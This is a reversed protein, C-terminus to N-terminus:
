AISVFLHQQTSLRVNNEIAYQAAYEYNRSTAEKNILGEDWISSVEGSYPRNYIAMPSVYISYEHNRAKEFAWDPVKHHPSRPDADLVFKLCHAHQLVKDSIVGYRGAKYSAKPSVVFSVPHLVLEENEFDGDEHDQFIKDYEAFFAAQTGNTEVQIVKFWNEKSLRKILDILNRQLLPEGGTIVLVHELRNMAGSVEKLEKILGDISYATGKDLQFSTDCNHVHLDGIIFTNNGDCTFNVVRPGKKKLIAARRKSVPKVSIISAGNNFKEKRTQVSRSLIEPDSSPNNKKMRKSLNIAALERRKVHYIEEGELLDCAEIFGRKTTHFPHDKTCILTKVAGDIEYKVEVLDDIEVERSMTNLVKTEVIEGNDDLTYLTDGVRVDEINKKGDTTIIPTGEIFCFNCFNSKSGFNCGSLRLFVAPFGAYPGEGQLTKFISTVVIRDGFKDYDRPRVDYDVNQITIVSSM